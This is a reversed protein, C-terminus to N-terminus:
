EVVCLILIVKNYLIVGSSLIVYILLYLYTMLLPKSIMKGQMELPPFFVLISAYRLLLLRRELWVLGFTLLLLTGFRSRLEDGRCTIALQSIFLPLRFHALFETAHRVDLALAVRKRWFSSPVDRVFAEVM